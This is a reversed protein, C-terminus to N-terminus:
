WRSFISMASNTALHEKYTLPKAEIVNKNAQKLAAQIQEPKFRKKVFQVIKFIEVPKAEVKYYCCYICGKGCAIGNQSENLTKAIIEDLRQYFNDLSKMPSSKSLESSSIDFEKKAKMEIEEM